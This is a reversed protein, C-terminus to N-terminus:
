PSFGPIESISCAARFPREEVSIWLAASFGQEVM